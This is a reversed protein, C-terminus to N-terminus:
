ALDDCLNVMKASPATITVTGTEADQTYSVRGTTYLIGEIAPGVFTNHGTGTGVLDGGPLVQEHFTGATNVSISEGTRPNTFTAKSGPAITILQDGHEVYKSKGVFTVEVPFGCAATEVSAEASEPPDGLAPAGALLSVVVGLAGAAVLRKM